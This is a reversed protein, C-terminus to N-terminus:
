SCQTPWKSKSSAQSRLISPFPRFLQMLVQRQVLFSKIPSSRALTHQTFKKLLKQQHLYHLFQREMVYYKLPLRGTQSGSISFPKFSRRKLIGIHGQNLSLVPKLQQCFAPKGGMSWRWCWSSFWEKLLWLKLIVLQSGAFWSWPKDYDMDLHYVKSSGTFSPPSYTLPSNSTQVFETQWAVVGIAREHKSGDDFIGQLNAATCRSCM